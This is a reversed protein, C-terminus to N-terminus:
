AAMASAPPVAYGAPTCTPGTGVKPHSFGVLNARKLARLQHSIASKTMSLLVGIDCVCMEHLSLACLIRMRTSDGLVKFFDSLDYAEADDIMSARVQEVVEGHIGDSDCVAIGRAM